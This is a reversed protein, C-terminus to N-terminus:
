EGRAVTRIAEVLRESPSDKLLYGAAGARLAEFVDDDDDFTTLVLIKPGTEPTGALIERTAAAGGMEPMRLDMLIVDPQQTGIADILEQGNTAEIILEIEDFSRLLLKLGKLFLVQDDAIALKISSM